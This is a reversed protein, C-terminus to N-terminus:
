PSDEHGRGAGAGVLWPTVAPLAIRAAVLGVAYVALASGLLKTSPMGFEALGVLAAVAVGYRLPAPVRPMNVLSRYAVGIGLGLLLPIVAVGAWGFDIWADGVWGISISTDRRASLLPLGTFDRTFDTDPYLEPKGPWVLRPVLVHGVAAGWVAGQQHPRSDPVYQMAFALFDVYALRRALSESGRSIIDQNVDDWLDVLTAIQEGRDLSVVQAGTGENAIDRYEGKISQWVIGLYLAGLGLLTVAVARWPDFRGTYTAVALFAIYVPVRFAAFFGGIGNLIELGCVVAFLGIGRRQVLAVYGLAFLTAFRLQAMAEVAQHLGGSRILWGLVEVGILLGVHLQLLRWPRLEMADRIVPGSAGAVVRAAGLRMGVALMALALLGAVVARDIPAWPMFTALDVGLVTAHFVPTAVQLWQYGVVFLLIPPEGRRSLLLLVLAATLVCLTLFPANAPHAASALGIAALAAAALVGLRLPAADSATAGASM